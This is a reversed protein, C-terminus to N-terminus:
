LRSHAQGIRSQLWRIHVSSVSVGGKKDPDELFFALAESIFCWKEAKDSSDLAALLEEAQTTDILIKHDESSIEFTTM